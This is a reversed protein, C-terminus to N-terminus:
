LILIEIKDKFIIAAIRNSIKIDRIEEQAVYKKQLWGKSDIFYIETGLNIAINEESSDAEKAIGNIAYNHIKKTGSNILTINSQQNNIGDSIEEIQYITNNLDIGAFTYNKDSQEFNMLNQINGESLLNIGNNCMCILNKSGQYKLNIILSNIPMEYTYITSNGSSQSAEKISITKVTSQILTKSTNVEAFSLYRNDSSISSDIVTNNPIYTKFLLEGSQNYVIIVSKYTTGSCVVSVYGNENVSVRAITGDVETNWLEKTESVLYLKQKGKEAIALYKGNSTFLPNSIKIDLSATQKASSNYINLRNVNLLAVYKDYAYISVNENPEIEIASLDGQSVTKMLIHIDAWNRFKLNYIYFLSFIIVAIIVCIIVISAVVKKKNLTHENLNNYEKFEILKM